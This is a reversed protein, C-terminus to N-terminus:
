FDVAQYGAVHLTLHLRNRQHLRLELSDVHLYYPYRALSLLFEDVAGAQGEFAIRFPLKVYPPDDVEVFEGSTANSFTLEAKEGLGRLEQQLISLAASRHLAAPFFRKKNAEIEVRSAELTADHAEELGQLATERAIRDRAFAIEESLLNVEERLPQIYYVHGLLLLLILLLRSDIM